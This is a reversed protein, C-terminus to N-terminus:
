LLPSGHRVRSSSTERSLMPIPLLPWIVFGFPRLLVASRIEESRIGGAFQKFQPKLSLLWTTVITCAVSTFMHGNGILVGLVFTVVLAVSTTGEVTRSAVIDRVNLLVALLITAFMGMVM